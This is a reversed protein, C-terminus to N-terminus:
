TFQFTFQETFQGTFKVRDKPITFENSDWIILFIGGSIEIRIEVRDIAPLTVQVNLSSGAINKLLFDLDDRVATEIKIRGTSNLAVEQLVSETKSNFKASPNGSLLLENGWWENGGFLALYIMNEFAEATVLNNGQLQLDGGDGTEILFLDTM